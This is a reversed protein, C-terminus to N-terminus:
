SQSSATGPDVAVSIRWELEAILNKISEIAASSAPPDFILRVKLFVYTKIFELKADDQVFDSWMATKDQISFGTVPGAGLQTLIALTSNIHIILDVDFVTYEEAVGLMKKISTLISTSM